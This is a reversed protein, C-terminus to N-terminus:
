QEETGIATAPTFQYVGAHLDGTAPDILIGNPRAFHSTFLADDLVEVEHGMQRLEEIVEVPLRNSVETRSGEAHVRPASIAAQMGMGFDIVNVLCEYIASIVRRGGPSGLALLPVGDRLVIVPAAASMVRKGPGISMVAGPEPDFWTAANNLTIGTGKIVVASGFTGGLTSTLSVMNRDRDITTIQTTQGEGGNGSRAPQLMAERNPDFRWPDGPVADPTARNPDITRRQEAAYEAAIVGRYPVPMLSADGLYRLRDLFARRLAEIELHLAAATQSGLRGLDFGSLIQLAETVTAYGSNELQGLIEHGRYSVRAPEVVRTQHAELDAETILGGNAAMDAAILRAVEGRYVTEPGEEAILKLTRALDPQEFRRGPVPPAGSDGLFTRKTEPFRALREYDHAVMLTIYPNVKYGDEALRIAPQLLEQWPLRGARRHAEGLLSPTGPVGPTLWGTNNADDRTARWNYMGARDSGPLLEFMEPRIARPLVTSGDLCLTEGSAADRYVMFAIGGVGSMFPEVVGIAFATAVAADIANGGRRLIEAGAEAAPPQMAAVMGGRAVAETKEHIWQSRQSLGAM